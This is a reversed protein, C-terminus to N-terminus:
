YVCVCVCVCVCVRARVTLGTLRALSTKTIFLVIVLSLFLYSTICKWREQEWGFGKQWSSNIISQIIIYYMINYYYYFSWLCIIVQLKLKALALINFMNPLTFYNLIFSQLMFTQLPPPSIYPPPSIAWHNFVSVAITNRTSRLM